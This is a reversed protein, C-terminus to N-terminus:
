WASRRWAALGVPQAVVLPEHDGLGDDGVAPQRGLRGRGTRSQSSSVATWASRRTATSVWVMDPRARCTGCGPAPGPRGPRPAARWGRRVQAGCTSAGVRGRQRLGVSASRFPESSRPSISARQCSKAPVPSRSRASWAGRPRRGAAACAPSAPGPRLRQFGGSRAPISDSIVETASRAASSHTPRQRSCGAPRRGAPGATAGLCCPSVPGARLEGRVGPQDEAQVPSGRGARRPRPAVAPTRRAASDRAGTM